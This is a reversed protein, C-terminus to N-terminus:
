IYSPLLFLKNCYFCCQSKESSDILFKKNNVVIKSAKFL